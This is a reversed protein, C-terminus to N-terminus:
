DSLGSSAATPPPTTDIGVAYKKRYARPSQGIRTRFVKGMYNASPFGSRVAIEDMPLHTSSLLGKGIEIRAHQIAQAPSCGIKEKFRKQLIRLSIGAHEAVHSVSIGNSAHERIFSRAKNLNHDDHFLTSTSLREVVEIPALLIPDGGTNKGDFQDTLARAAEFGIKEYPMRISSIAIGGTTNLLEDNGCSLVGIEDPILLGCKKILGCVKKALEDNTCFIAAPKPTNQLWQTLTDPPTAGNGIFLQATDSNEKNAYAVFHSACIEEHTRGEPVLAAVNLYSRQALFDAAMVATLEPDVDVQPLPSNPTPYYTSVTAADSRINPAKQDRTILPAIIGDYPWEESHEFFVNLNCCSLEFDTRHEMFKLIGTRVDHALPLIWNQAILINKTSM